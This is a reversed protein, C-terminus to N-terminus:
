NPECLQSAWRLRDPAEDDRGEVVVIGNSNDFKGRIPLPRSDSRLGAPDLPEFNVDRESVASGNSQKMAEPAVDSVLHVQMVTELYREAIAELIPWDPPIRDGLSDQWYQVTAELLGPPPVFESTPNAGAQGM